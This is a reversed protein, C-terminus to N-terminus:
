FSDRLVLNACIVLNGDKLLAMMSLSISPATTSAKTFLFVGSAEERHDLFMKSQWKEHPEPPNLGDDLLHAHVAIVLESRNALLFSKTLCLISIRSRERGSGIGALASHIAAFQWQRL